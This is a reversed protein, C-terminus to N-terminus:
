EAPSMANSQALKRMVYMESRYISHRSGHILILFGHKVILGQSSQSTSSSQPLPTSSFTVWFGKGRCCARWCGSWCCCWSRCWCSLCSVTWIYPPLGSFFQWVGPSWLSMCSECSPPSSSGCWTEHSFISRLWPSEEVKLMTNRDQKIDTKDGQSVGTM